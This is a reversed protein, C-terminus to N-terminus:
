NKGVDTYFERWSIDYANDSYPENYKLLAMCM